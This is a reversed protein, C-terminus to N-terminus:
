KMNDKYFDIVELLGSDLDIEPEWGLETRIKNANMRYMFDHGPRDEVFEIMEDPDSYGMLKLIRLAMDINRVSEGSGINYVNGLSGNFLVDWIASCHDEVHIWDRMQEGKGYVCIPDGHLANTIVKPIFKEQHQWPGYNNSCRTIVAPFGYTEYFANVLQDAGAKTASYPNNPNLPTSEEFAMDCGSGIAGYVEDTSVQVYRHFYGDEWEETALLCRLLNHTGEVNTRVFDSADDISNDVHTEAAFNVVADVDWERILYSVLDRNCIDGIVEVLDCVDDGHWRPTCDISEISASQAAYTNKDLLIVRGFNDRHRKFIYRIFDSGIFGYGGTVLITHKYPKDM